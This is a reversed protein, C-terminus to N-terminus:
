VQNPPTQQLNLARRIFSLVIVIRTFSTVMILIGPAISLISFLFLIQLSLAVDSPESSSDFDIRINPASQAVAETTFLHFLLVIGLIQIAKLGIPWLWSKRDGLFKM